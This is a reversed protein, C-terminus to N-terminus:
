KTPPLVLIANTMSFAKGADMRKKGHGNGWSDTYIIQKTKSNYGTILRMHGGRAQPLGPEPFLGLQLCWGVPIGQDIYEKIKSQFRSFSNKEMMVTRFTEPDCSGIFYSFSIYQKSSVRAYDKEGNLKISKTGNKKALQQYANVDRMMEKLGNEYTRYDLKQDCIGKPYEYLINVRSNLQSTVKKLSGVMEPLTTGSSASSGALQAIEHQDTTRGYYQYIRAASACACYGKKGQDVMPINDIYIDENSKDRVINARLYTRDATAEGRGATRSSMVRLRLFEAVGRSTSQDLRYTTGGSEWTDRTLDVTVKKQERRSSSTLKKTLKARIQAALNLFQAKSIVGNDGKNFFSISVGELAGEHNSAIVTEGAKVGLMKLGKNVSRLSRKASSQWKFDFKKHNPNQEFNAIKSEWLSDDFLFSFMDVSKVVVKPAPKKKTQKRKKKQADAVSCFLVGCLFIISFLLKNM